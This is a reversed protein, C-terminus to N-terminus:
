RVSPVRTFAHADILQIVNQQLHLEKLSFLDSFSSREVKEILNDDLKLKELSPLNRFTDTRIKSIGNKTLIITELNWLDQFAESQLDIISNYDLRLGVLSPLDKFSQLNTLRLLYEWKLDIKFWIATWWSPWKFKGALWNKKRSYRRFNVWRQLSGEECNAFPQLQHGSIEVAAYIYICYRCFFWISTLNMLHPTNWCTLPM